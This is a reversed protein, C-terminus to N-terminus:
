AESAWIGTSGKLLWATEGATGTGVITATDGSIASTKTNILDKDITGSLEVVTAALTVTGNIGDAAAPSVTIINAADVGSNMFTYELGALTSPLTIVLADVAVLFTKGSDEERLTTNATIVVIDDVLGKFWAPVQTGDANSIYYEGM